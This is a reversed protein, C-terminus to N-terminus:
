ECVVLRAYCEKGLLDRMVSLPTMTAFSGSLFAELLTSSHGSLAVVGPTDYRVPMGDSPEEKLNWFVIRPPGSYGATKFKRVIAEHVTEWPDAGRERSEDFDMDSFVIVIGKSVFDDSLGNAMCLDLVLDFTLDMDTSGGWEMSKVSKARDALGGATLEQGKLPIDPIGVIKPVSHFTIMRGFEPSGCDASEALLLGFAVAMEMPTGDMSGSVDVVPFMMGADKRAVRMRDVLGAWQLDQEISREEEAKVVVRHPLLSATPLKARGAKCDELYADYRVADHKQFVRKGWIERCLSPMHKYDVQDWLGGGVFSEPVKAKRCAVSILRRYEDFGMNLAASIDGIILTEKQHMGGPRPAWKFAMNDNREIGEVFSATVAERLRQITDDLLSTQVNNVLAAVRDARERGKGLAYMGDRQRIYAKWSILTAEDRWKGSNAGAGAHGKPKQGSM